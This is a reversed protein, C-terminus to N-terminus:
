IEAGVLTENSRQQTYRKDVSVSETGLLLVLYSNMANILYGM